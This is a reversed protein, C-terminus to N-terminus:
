SRVAAIKNLILCWDPGDNVPYNIEQDLFTHKAEQEEDRFLGVGYIGPEIEITPSLNPSGLKHLLAVVISGTPCNLPHIENALFAATRMREPVFEQGNTHVKIRAKFCGDFLVIWVLIEGQRTRQLFRENSYFLTAWSEQAQEADAKGKEFISSLSEERHIAASRDFIGLYCGETKILTETM